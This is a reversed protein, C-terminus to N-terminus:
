PNVESVHETPATNVEKRSLFLEIGDTLKELIVPLLVRDGQTLLASMEKASQQHKPLFTMMFARGAETIRINVKRRDGPNPLREIMDEKELTDLLGTMTASSVQYFPCIDSICEGDHSESVMLHVLIMFRGKSLGQSHFYSETLGMLKHLRQMTRAFNFMFDLDMEPFIDKFRAFTERTELKGIHRTIETDM